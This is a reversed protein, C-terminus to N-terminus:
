LKTQRWIKITFAFGNLFIEALFHELKFDLLSCNIFLKSIIERIFRQYIPKQKSFYIKQLTRHFLIMKLFKKGIQVESVVLKM